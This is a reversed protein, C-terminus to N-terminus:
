IVILILWALASLIFLLQFAPVDYSIQIRLKDFNKPAVFKVTGRKSPLLQGVEDNLLIRTFRYRIYPLDLVDGKKVNKIEFYNKGNQIGPIQNFTKDNIYGEHQEIKTLDDQSKKPVYQDLYNEPIRGKDAMEETILLNKQSIYSGVLARNFSHYWLGASLFTMAVIAVIVNIRSNQVLIVLCKSAVVAAFLTAFMLNRFPFQIVKVPTMELLKWPFFSSSMFFTLVALIFIGKISADFKRFLVAGVILALILVLGINYIFGEYQRGSVNMFSAKVLSLLSKGQLKQPSPMGYKQFTEEAIFPVTFILTALITMGVAKFFNIVRSKDLKVKAYFIILIVIFLLVCMFTTLIHSLIIMSMGIALPKWNKGDGFFLNYFGLFCLPLFVTSIYEALAARSFFDILRYTSFGYIVAFIIAQFTNGSFQKMAYHSILFSIFFYFMLGLYYAQIWSNTLMEFFTFPILTIWPYFINVGYGIKGFFNTTVGSQLMGQKFNDSLGMIRIFHYYTDDGYWVFKARITLYMLLALVAYFIIIYISRYKSIKIKM